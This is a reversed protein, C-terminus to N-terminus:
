DDYVLECFIDNRNQTRIVAKTNNTVILCNKPESLGGNEIVIQNNMIITNIIKVYVKFVGVPKIIHNRKNTPIIKIFLPM